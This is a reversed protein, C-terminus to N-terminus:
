SRSAVSQSSKPITKVQGFLSRLAGTDIEHSTGIEPMRSGNLLDKEKVFNPVWHSKAIGDLMLPIISPVKDNGAINVFWGSVARYILPTDSRWCFPYQHSVQSDKILKGNAKLHKIVQKDADKVYQGAFDTVEQTFKGTDDVPNPPLQDHSIIGNEMAVRFDEEGFAPAQHVVGTGDDDTVYSANLM